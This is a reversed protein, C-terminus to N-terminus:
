SFKNLGSIQCVFVTVFTGVYRPQTVSSITPLILEIILLLNPIINTGAPVFSGLFLM